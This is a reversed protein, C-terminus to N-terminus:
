QTTINKAKDKIFNKRQIFINRGFWFFRELFIQEACDRASKFFNNYDQFPTVHEHITQLDQQKFLIHCSLM